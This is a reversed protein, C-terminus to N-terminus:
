HKLLEISISGQYNGSALNIRIRTINNFLKSGTFDAFQAYITTDNINFVPSKSLGSPGNTIVQLKGSGGESKSILIGDFDQLNVNNFYYILSGITGQRINYIIIGDNIMISSCGTKIATTNLQLTRNIDGVDSNFSLLKTSTKKIIGPEQYDTVLQRDTLADLTYANGTNAILLALILTTILLATKM